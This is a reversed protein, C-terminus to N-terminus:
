FNERNSNLNKKLKRIITEVSKLIEIIAIEHHFRSFNQKVLNEKKLMIELPM